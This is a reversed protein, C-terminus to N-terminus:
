QERNMSRKDIEEESCVVAEYEFVGLRECEAVSKATRAPYSDLCVYIMSRGAKAALRKLADIEYYELLSVDEATVLDLFRLADVNRANVPRRPRKLTIRKWGGFPKVERSRASEKNTTIELTNPV